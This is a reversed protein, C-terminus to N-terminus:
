GRVKIDKDPYFIGCFDKNKKVKVAGSSVSYTDKIHPTNHLVRFQVQQRLNKKM